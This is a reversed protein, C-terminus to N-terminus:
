LFNQISSPSPSLSIKGSDRYYLLMDRYHISDHYYYIDDFTTYTTM